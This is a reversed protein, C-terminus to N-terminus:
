NSDTENEDGDVKRSVRDVFIKALMEDDNGFDVLVEQREKAGLIAKEVKEPLTFPSLACDRVQIKSEGSFGDSSSVKKTSITIRVLDGEKVEDEVKRYGQSEDELDAVKSVLENNSVVNKDMLLSELAAIRTVISALEASQNQAIRLAYQQVAQKVDTQLLGYAAQSVLKQFSQSPKGSTRARKSKGV